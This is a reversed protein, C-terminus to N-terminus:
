RPSDLFHDKQFSGRAGVSYAAAFGTRIAGMRGHSFHVWEGAWFVKAGPLNHADTVGFRIAASEVVTPLHVHRVVGRYEEGAFRLTGNTNDTHEPNYTLIQRPSSGEEGHVSDWFISLMASAGSATQGRTAYVMTAQDQPEGTAHEDGGLPKVAAQNRHIVVTTSGSTLSAIWSPSREGLLHRAIEPAVALIVAEFRETAPVSPGEGETLTELVAGAEDEWVRLVRSRHRM